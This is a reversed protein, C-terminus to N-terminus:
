RRQGSQSMEVVQNLLRLRYGYHENDHFKEVWRALQSTLEGSVPSGKHVAVNMMTEIVREYDGTGVTVFTKNLEKVDLRSRCQEILDWALDADHVPKKATTEPMPPV